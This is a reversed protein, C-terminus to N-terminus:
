NEYGYLLRGKWESIMVNLRFITKYYYKMCKKLNKYKYDIDKTQSCKNVIVFDASTEKYVLEMNLQIHKYITDFHKDKYALDEYLHISFIIYELYDYADLLKSCMMSEKDYYKKGKAIDNDLYKWLYIASAINLTDNTLDKGKRKTVRQLYNSFEHLAIEKNM